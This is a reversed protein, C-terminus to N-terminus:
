FRLLEFKGAKQTARASEYLHRLAFAHVEKETQPDKPYAFTFLNPLTATLLSEAEVALKKTDHPDSPLQWAPKNAPLNDAGVSAAFSRAEEAAHALLDHRDRVFMGYPTKKDEFVALRQYAYSSKHCASIFGALGDTKQGEEDDGEDDGQNGSNNEPGPTPNIVPSFSGTLKREDATFDRLLVLATGVAVDALTASTAGALNPFDGTITSHIETLADKLDRQPEPSPSETALESPPAWVPGVAKSLRDRISAQDGTAQTNKLIKAVRNRVTDTPSLTPLEPDSDIRIGCGSTVAIAATLTLFSRRGLTGKGQM